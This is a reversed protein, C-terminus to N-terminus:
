LLCIELWNPAKRKYIFPARKFLLGAEKFLFKKLLFGKCEQIKDYWIKRKLANFFDTVINNLPSTILSPLAFYQSVSHM